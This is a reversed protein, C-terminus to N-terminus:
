GARIEAEQGRCEGTETAPPQVTASPQPDARLEQM